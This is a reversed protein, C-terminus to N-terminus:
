CAFSCGLMVEKGRSSNEDLEFGGKTRGVRKQGGALGEGHEGCGPVSAAISGPSLCPWCNGPPPRTPEEGLFLGRSDRKPTACWSPCSLARMRDCWGWCQRM